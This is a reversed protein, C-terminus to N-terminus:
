CCRGACVRARRSSPSRWRGASVVASIRRPSWSTRCVLSRPVTRSPAPWASWSETSAAAILLASGQLAPRLVDPRGTYTSWGVADYLALVEMEVLAASSTAEIRATTM